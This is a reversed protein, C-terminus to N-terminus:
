KTKVITRFVRICAGITASFLILLLMLTVVVDVLFDFM